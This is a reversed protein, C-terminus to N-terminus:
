TDKDERSKRLRERVSSNVLEPDGKGRTKRMVQGILFHVAKEDLMADSVAKPNAAFVENVVRDIAERDAIRAMDMEKVVEKASKGTTVLTPLIIKGIKGSITGDRIMGLMEAFTAPTIKAEEIELGKEHLVGLLDSMIWN